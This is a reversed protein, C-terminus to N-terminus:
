CATCAHVSTESAVNSARTVPMVVLPLANSSWLVTLPGAEQRWSPDASATVVVLNSTM